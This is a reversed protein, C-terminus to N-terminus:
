NFVIQYDQHARAATFIPIVYLALAPGGDIALQYVGEPLIPQHPGRLILAFPQRAMAEWGPRERRDLTVLVLELDGGIPCFAQGLYPAFDEATLQDVPKM